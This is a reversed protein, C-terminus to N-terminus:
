TTERGPGRQLALNKLTQLAQEKLGFRSLMRAGATDILQKVVLKSKRQAAQELAGHGLKVGRGVREDAYPSVAVYKRMRDYDEVCQRAREALEDLAGAQARFLIRRGHFYSNQLREAALVTARIETLLCCAISPLTILVYEVDAPGSTRDDSVMLGKMSLTIRRRMRREPDLKSVRIGALEAHEEGGNAALWSNWSATVVGHVFELKGGAKREPWARYDDLHLCSRGAIEKTRGPFRSLPTVADDFFADVEEWSADARNGASDRRQFQFPVVPDAFVSMKLEFTRAALAVREVEEVAAQDLWEGALLPAEYHVTNTVESLRVKSGQRLLGSQVLDHIAAELADRCARIEDGSLNQRGFHLSLWRPIEIMELDDFGTVDNRLAAAVAPDEKSRPAPAGKTLASWVEFAKTIRWLRERTEVAAWATTAVALSQRHLLEHVHLNTRLVLEYQFYAESLSGLSQPSIQGPRGRSGKPAGNVAQKLLKTPLARAASDEALWLVYAEISDFSALEDLWLDVLDRPTLTKEVKELRRLKNTGVM